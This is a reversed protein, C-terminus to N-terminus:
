KPKRHALNPKTGQPGHQGQQADYDADAGDHRNRDGILCRLAGMPLHELCDGAFGRQFHRGSVPATDVLSQDSLKLLRQRLREEEEPTALVREIFANSGDDGDNYIWNVLIPRPAAQTHAM